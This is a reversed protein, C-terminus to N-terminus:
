RFVNCRFTVFRSFSASNCSLGYASNTQLHKEAYKATWFLRSSTLITTPLSDSNLIRDECERGFEQCTNQKRELLSWKDWYLVEHLSILWVNHVYWLHVIEIRYNYDKLQLIFLQVDSSLAFLFVLLLESHARQIHGWHQAAEHQQSSANYCAWNTQSCFVQLFADGGSSDVM